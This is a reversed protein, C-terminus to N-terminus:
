GDINEEEPPSLYMIYNETLKIFTEIDDLIERLHYAPSFREFTKQKHLEEEVAVKTDILNFQLDILSKEVDILAM